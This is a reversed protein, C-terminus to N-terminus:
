CELTLNASVSGRSLKAQLAKRLDPEMDDYGAPLRFRMELGRSNVSKIEWIWARGSEAGDVRSFGTM